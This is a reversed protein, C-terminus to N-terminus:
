KLKSFSQFSNGLQQQLGFNVGEMEGGRGGGGEDSRGKMGTLTKNRGSFLEFPKQM